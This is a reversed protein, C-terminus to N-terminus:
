KVLREFVDGEIVVFLLEDDNQWVGIHHVGMDVSHCIAADLTDRLDDLSAEPDHGFEGYSFKPKARKEDLLLPMDKHSLMVSKLERM